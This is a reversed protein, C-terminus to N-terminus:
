MREKKSGDTYAEKSNKQDNKKYMLFNEKKRKMIPLHNEMMNPTHIM